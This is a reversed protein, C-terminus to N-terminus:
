EPLGMKELLLPWRPDDHLSALFPNGKLLTLGSDRQAYARELWEFAADSDGRYAYNEALQVAARDGHSRSLKELLADAEERRGWADYIWALGRQRYFPHTVQEIHALAAEPRSRLLEICALRQHASEKRDPRLELAKRYAAEAEDLRGARFLVWGLSRYLGDNLPSLEVRRRALALAEDFRGLIEAMPVAGALGIDTGPALARAREYAQEAGAWDWDYLRKIRGLVYWGRALNEDLELAKNVEERALRYGEDPPLYVYGKEMSGAAQNTRVHALEAWAPANRPELALSEELYEIAKRLNGQNRFHQGQLFLNYAEANRGGPTAAGAPRALLTVRLAGAVSAAIDDQVVFIDELTRDYTQSWLHFGDAVNILQATIRIQGGAKRVSGELITSVNLKEGIVRLDNTQGKFQFSSSRGVVKLDHIKALTNLLEESLGDTFYEQDKEPSLDVFPLVAISPGATAPAASSAPERAVEQSHATPERSSDTRKGFWVTLAVVAALAVAGLGMWYGRRSPAAPSQAVSLQASMTDRELRNLDTKLDRASQYRLTKDKELAKNLIRELEDPLDPNIRVPATPARNLILDFIAGATKGAFPQRGTAMEYLVVGLSFLDTREDLEEGRVQEPSMYAVTGMATGPTTLQEPALETEAEAAEAGSSLKRAQEETVKALGFDLVKADGRETVFLNAPKLDRHVIGAGHAAELADAVQAGIRLIQEAPMPQGSIRYKLTEGGMLEMVIFPRDDEEGLEYITCIHPHNLASAARAERQFRELAEADEALADPLFKLAVKRGLVLDEAQYVVGMGGGGLKELIKYHSVTTGIM